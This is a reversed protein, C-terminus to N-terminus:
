LKSCLASSVWCPRFLQGRNCIKAKLKSEITDNIVGNLKRRLILRADNNVVEGEKEVGGERSGERGERSGVGDRSKGEIDGLGREVEGKKSGRELEGEERGEGEREAKGRQVEGGM